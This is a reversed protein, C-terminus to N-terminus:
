LGGCASYNAINLGAVIDREVRWGDDDDPFVVQLGRGGRPKSLAQERQQSSMLSDDAFLVDDIYYSCRGPELLMMHVHAPERQQDARAPYAAPRITNFGYRGLADTRAWGRLLGHPQAPTASPYNGQADTHHIYVIVGPMAKGAISRVTGRLELRAGEAGPLPSISALNAPMGQYILECRDCPALIPEPQRAAVQTNLLLVAGALWFLRHM